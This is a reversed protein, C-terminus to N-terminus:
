VSSFPVISELDSVYEFLASFSNVGKRAEPPELELMTVQAREEKKIVIGRM